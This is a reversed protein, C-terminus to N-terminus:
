KYSFQFGFCLPIQKVEYSRGKTKSQVTGSSGVTDLSFKDSWDADAIKLSAQFYM